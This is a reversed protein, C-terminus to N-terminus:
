VGFLYTDPMSGDQAAQLPTVASSTDIWIYEDFQSALNAEYYHSFLESEPRYIVGIARQLRPVTLASHLEGAHHGALPLLLGPQNTLHFQYEHSQAHSPRVEMMQMPGGWESAAAVTGQHTGFGILYAQEHFHRRVLEGLNYEGRSSM